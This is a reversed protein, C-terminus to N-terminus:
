VDDIAEQDNTDEDDELLQEADPDGDLRDM